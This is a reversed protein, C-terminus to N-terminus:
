PKPAQLPQATTLFPSIGVGNQAPALGMLTTDTLTKLFAVVDDIERETLAPGASALRNFPARDNVINPLYALPLDNPQGLPGYWRKPDSNRTAYFSVVERLNKFVGNHM